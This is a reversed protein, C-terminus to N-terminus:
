ARRIRYRNLLLVALMVLLLVAQIVDGLYVPVDLERSATLSGRSVLALFLAALLVGPATLAGLTAVIIGTYGFGPSLSGILYYHIGGVESVGALGAIGGSILATTLMTRGVRIGLFQAGDRNKGVARLELGFRTRTLIWWLAIVVVAAILFGLHVRTREIIRPFQASLAITPSQPWGSVPDRWPGNLLASIIYGMVSNMLLTTVVEDVQLRVKLLAPILAWLAGAIFGGVIMLPIAVWASLDGVYQGILAAAAAGALLQGEAGINYYGGAFALAVASGTLLIPTAMVLIDARASNKTLPDILLEYAVALPNAGALIVLVSVLLFTIAIAIFPIAARLWLPSPLRELRLGLSM